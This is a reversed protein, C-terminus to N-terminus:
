LYSKGIIKIFEERTHEKEFEQQFKIKLEKKIEDDEHCNRCLLIVFNNEISRKRNSGGYVEHPDLKYSYEKCFECRGRKTLFRDREREIKQLKKSVKKIEKNTKFEKKSCKKCEELKITKKYEKCYWIVKYNKQRKLLNKCNM